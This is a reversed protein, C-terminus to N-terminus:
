KRSPRDFYRGAFTIFVPWNPGATHGKSHQRFALDGAMDGTDLAPYETTALGKAGLLRYVPDASIAAMFEGRGDAWADSNTFDVAPDVSNGVSIFIPRPAVLAILENSDVSLDNAALPGAFKLFNGAMWQYEDPEAVNELSEGFNRRYPKAGGEGSSAIFALAFRQDYVMTALAAKGYRSVGEIAVKKADVSKDTELYDLARSAGWAWARLAGWDDPKRAQGKNMLGIIGVKLDCGSDPQYATPPLSAYGWNKALVMQHWDDNLGASKPLVMGKPLVFALDMVVPVPQTAVAPVTLEMEIDVSVAPYSSNDVHGVIEKKIVAIDGVTDKSTSKVQWTVKPMNRPVQGYIEKDFLGLIEPRRQKRWMEASTVKGGNSLVLPDPLKPYPNAKSEDYNAPGAKTYGPLMEHTFAETPTEVRTRLTTIHLADMMQHRDADACKLRPIGAKYYERMMSAMQHAADQATADSASPQPTQALNTFSIAMSLGLTSLFMRSITRM